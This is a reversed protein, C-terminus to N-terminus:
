WSMFSRPGKRIKLKSECSYNKVETREKEVVWGVNPVFLKTKLLASFDRHVGIFIAVIKHNYTM